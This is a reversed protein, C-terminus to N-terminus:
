GAPVRQVGLGGLSLQTGAPHPPRPGARSRELREVRVTGMTGEARGQGRTNIIGREPGDNHAPAQILGARSRAEASEQKCGLRARGEESVEM